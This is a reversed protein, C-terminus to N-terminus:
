NRLLRPTTGADPVFVVGREQMIVDLEAKSLYHRQEPPLNSDMAEFWTEGAHQFTKTLVIEHGSKFNGSRPTVNVMVAHGQQLVGAFDASQVVQTRGFAEALIIVEGGMLGGKQWVVNPDARQAANRWKAERLLENARAVVVGYPLGAAHALAFVACDENSQQGASHLDPGQGRTASQALAPDRDRTLVTQWTERVQTETVNPDGDADLAKLAKDLETRDETSWGLREALANMEDVTRVSEADLEADPGSSFPLLLSPPAVKRLDVVAPDGFELTEAPRAHIPAAGAPAAIFDLGNSAPTPPSKAASSQMDQTFKQIAVQMDAAAAKDAKRSQEDQQATQALNLNDQYVSSNEPYPNVALAEKFFAIATAWDGKHYANTGRYNAFRAKAQALNKKVTDDDANKRLSEEYAAIANAWDEKKAFEVGEHNSNWAEQLLQVRKQELKKEKRDRLIQWFNPGNYPKDAGSAGDDDSGGTIVTMGVNNARCFEEAAARTPFPGYKAPGGIRSSARSNDVYWGAWM